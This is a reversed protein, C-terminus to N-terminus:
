DELLLQRLTLLMGATAGWINHGEWPLDFTELEEEGIRRVVRRHTAPDFLHRLPAEFVASVETPDPRLEFGPRVLAVVPTVQFGSIVVHDPLRGVVDVFGRSLGVEEETERLAASEPDADVAELAGGPFSIQGAHHPLHRSRYTLLVTLEDPREVLPVLVAAPRPSAPFLHRIRATVAPPFPGIRVENSPWRAAALRARVRERLEAGSLRHLPVNVAATV